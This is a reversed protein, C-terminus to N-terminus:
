KGSLLKLKSKLRKIKSKAKMKCLALPMKKNIKKIGATCDHTLKYSRQHLNTKLLWVQPLRCCCVPSSNNRMCLKLISAKM